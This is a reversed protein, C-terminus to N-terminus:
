SHTPSYGAKEIADLIADPSTRDADYRVTATKAELDAVSQVGDLRGLVSQVREVCGSCKM